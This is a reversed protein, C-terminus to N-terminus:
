KLEESLDEDEFLSQDVGDSTTEKFERIHREQKSLGIPRSYAQWSFEVGAYLHHGYATNAGAVTTGVGGSFNVTPSYRYKFNGELIMLSPNASYYKLSGANVRDTVTSKTSSDDSTLSTYGDLEAGISLRSFLFQHGIGYPLLM